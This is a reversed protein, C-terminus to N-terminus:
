QTVRPTDWPLQIERNLAWDDMEDSAEQWAQQWRPDLTSTPPSPRPAENATVSDALFASDVHGEIGGSRIRWWQGSEDIVQVLTNRVLRGVTEHNESPGGRVYVADSGVFMIRTSQAPVTNPLLFIFGVGLLVTIFVRVM